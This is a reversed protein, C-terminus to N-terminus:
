AYLFIVQGRLFVLCTGLNTRNDPNLVLIIVNRRGRAILVDFKHHM